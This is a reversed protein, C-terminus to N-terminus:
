RVTFVVQGYIMGDAIGREPVIRYAGPPLIQGVLTKGGRGGFVRPGPNNRNHPSIFYLVRTNGNFIAMAKTGDYTASTIKTPVTIVVYNGELLPKAIAKIRGWLIINQPRINTDVTITVSGGPSAKLIYTGPLLIGEIDNKNNSTIYRRNNRWLTFSKANSSLSVIQARTTLNLTNGTTPTRFLKSQIAQLISSSGCIILIIFMIKTIKQSIKKM